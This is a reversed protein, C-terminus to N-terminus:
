HSRIRFDKASINLFDDSVAGAWNELTNILKDPSIELGHAVDTLTADPGATDLFDIAGQIINFDHHNFKASM